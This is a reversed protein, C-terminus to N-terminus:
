GPFIGSVREVIEGNYLEHTLKVKVMKSQLMAWAFPEGPKNMGCAERYVRQARNKGKSNDMAGQPTLDLFVRDTLTLEPSLGIAQVEPPVQIRLPVLMSVWPQGARDGKEITGTATKIEGIVATYLADEAGPNEAPLPPRKENSETTQAHLFVNPDFSSTMTVSELNLFNTWV